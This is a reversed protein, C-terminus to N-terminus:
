SWVKSMDEIPIGKTEPLFFAVFLTMSLVFFAFIFFLGFKTACLLGLFVQGIVFTMLMNINANVGQGTSRIELPFIEIPVLWGLPGWSWAFGAVYVCVLAVTIPADSAGRGHRDVVLFAVGTAAVNVLGTIVASMLSADNGFGLTQFLVPAYFMIVNIGTLQQFFPILFTMVMHPVYKRHFIALKNNNNNAAKTANACADCLDQYEEHVEETGRLRRFNKKVDEESVGRNIMSNPTDPLSISCLLVIAALVAALGLILRWGWWGKIKNTSYNVLNAVLIGITIMLQFMTNLSGRSKSPAMESLYLPAAQIVFGVGLGLLLRGIYLMAVHIAAANFPGHKSTSYSAPWQVVLAALYLSSTFFTLKHSDFKCYQNSSVIGQEKRYVDPFFPELFYSMATVGGYIGIDYGLMLGGCVVVLSAFIVFTTMQGPYVKKMTSSSSFSSSSSSDVVVGGTMQAHLEGRIPCQDHGTLTFIPYHLLPVTLCQHLPTTSCDLMSAISYHATLWQHLPITSLLKLQVWEAVRIVRLMFSSLVEEPKEAIELEAKLQKNEAQMEKIEINVQELLFEVKKGNSVLGRRHKVTAEAMGVAYSLRCM